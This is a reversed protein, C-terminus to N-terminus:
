TGEKKPAGAEHKLARIDAAAMLSITVANPNDRRAYEDCVKAAAELAEDRGQQYVMKLVEALRDRDESTAPRDYLSRIFLGAAGEPTIHFRPPWEAVESSKVPDAEDLTVGLKASDEPSREYPCGVMGGNRCHACGSRPYPKGDDRLRNRCNAPREARQKDTM